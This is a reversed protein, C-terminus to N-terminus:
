DLFPCDNEIQEERAILTTLATIKVAVPVDVLQDCGPTYCVSGTELHHYVPWNEHTLGPVLKWTGAFKWM